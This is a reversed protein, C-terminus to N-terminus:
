SDFSFDYLTNSIKGIVIALNVRKEEWLIRLIAYFDQPFDIYKDLKVYYELIQGNRIIKIKIRDGIKM